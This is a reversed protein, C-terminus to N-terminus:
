DVISHEKHEKLNDMHVLIDDHTHHVTSDEMSLKGMYAPLNDPKGPDSGDEMSMNNMCVLYVM